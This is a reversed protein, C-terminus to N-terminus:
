YSKKLIKLKSILESFKVYFSKSLFVFKLIEFFKSHLTPIEFEKHLLATENVIKLPCSLTFPMCVGFGHDVKGTCTMPSSNHPEWGVAGGHTPM